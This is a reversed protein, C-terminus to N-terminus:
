NGQDLVPKLTGLLAAIEASEAARDARLAELEAVLARNIAEADVVGDTAANRLAEAEERLDANAARLRQIAGDLTELRDAHATAEEELAAIRTDQRDKLAAVRDELDAKAQQERTLRVQLDADGKDRMAHARIRDLAVKIRAELTKIESM